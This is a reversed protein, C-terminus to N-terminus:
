MSHQSILFQNIVFTEIYSVNQGLCQICYLTYHYHFRLIHEGLKAHDVYQLKSFIAKRWQPTYTLLIFFTLTCVALYNLDNRTFQFHICDKGELQSYYCSRLAFWSMIKIDWLSFWLFFEGDHRSPHSHIIIDERLM